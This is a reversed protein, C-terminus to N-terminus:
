GRVGCCQAGDYLQIRALQHKREATTEDFSMGRNLYEGYVAVNV